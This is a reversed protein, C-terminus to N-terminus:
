IKWADLWSDLSGDCVVSLSGLRPLAEVTKKTELIISDHESTKSLDQFFQLLEMGPPGQGNPLQITQLCYGELEKTWQDLSITKCPRNDARIVRRQLVPLLDTYHCSKPNVLHRYIINNDMLKPDSTAPRPQSQYVVEDVIIEALIDVPIWDIRSAKALTDPLYGMFKSCRLLTPFWDRSPWTPLSDDQNTVALPGCVQGLRCVVASLNSKITALDLIESALLKSEGYGTQCHEPASLHIEPVPQVPYRQVTAISSIFILPCNKVSTQLCFQVLNSVGKINPSFYSLPQNFDVPWQCHVVCTVTTLLDQYDKSLIGLEMESLCATIKRIYPTDKVSVHFTRDDYHHTRGPNARDLCTIRTIGPRAILAELIYSGVFGTSGTLLVHQDSPSRQLDM